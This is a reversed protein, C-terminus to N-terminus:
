PSSAAPEVLLSTEGATRPNTTKNYELIIPLSAVATGGDDEPVTWISASNQELVSQYSPISTGPLNEITDPSYSAQLDLEWTQEFLSKHGPNLPSGSFGAPLKPYSLMVTFRGREDAIGLWKEGSLASVRLVANAAPQGSVSDTLEGNIMAMWGPVSRTPSSYLYLGRPSNHPSGAVQEYSLFVGRYPLPLDIRLAVDLYRRLKDRIVVVFESKDAPSAMVEQDVYGYEVHRMGSLHAFAFIGSRTSHAYSKADPSSAPHATVLMDNDIQRDTVADLLRIGLPTFVSHQEIVEVM